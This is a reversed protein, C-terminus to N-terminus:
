STTDQLSHIVALLAERNKSPVHYCAELLGSYTIDGCFSDCLDLQMDAPDNAMLFDVTVGFLQSMQLLIDYGPMNSGSEYQSICAASVNLIDALEKKKLNQRERLLTLRQAFSAM